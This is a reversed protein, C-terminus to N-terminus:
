YQLKGPTGVAIALQTVPLVVSPQAVALDGSEQNFINGDLQGNEENFINATLAVLNQLSTSAMDETILPILSAVMEEATLDVFILSLYRYSKQLNFVTSTLVLINHSKLQLTYNTPNIKM